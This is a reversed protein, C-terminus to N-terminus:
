HTSKNVCVRVCVRGPSDVLVLLLRLRTIYRAKEQRARANCAQIVSLSLPSPSLSFFGAMIVPRVDPM